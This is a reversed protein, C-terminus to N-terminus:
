WACAVKGISKKEELFRHASAIQEAKFINFAVPQFVKQEYLKVVDHLCRQFLEPKELAIKLMSVGIIGKSNLMLLGPHYIGFQLITAIRSFINTANSMSAAGYCIMKGGPSLIKMGRRVSSGGLADFIADVGKGRTIQNVYEVFDDTASNVIKLVGAQMLFEKKWESSTAAIIECGKHAAYQLLGVGVGGAAAHILVKDGESINAAIAACYYATCYQTLLATAEAVNPKDSIKLVVRYDVTAYEAYGGFHTFAAVRDGESLGTVENGTQEIYGCVDYGPIFPIAPADRYIGKRAHVDAFNLGFGDIKILVEGPKPVPKAVQRIEFAKDADGFKVIYIARM